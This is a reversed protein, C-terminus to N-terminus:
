DDLRADKVGKLEALRRTYRQELPKVEAMLKADRAADARLKDLRATVAKLYRPLHQLQPWPTDLAFRKPVLRQLQASIDDGVDKPPRADK